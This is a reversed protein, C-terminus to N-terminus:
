VGAWGTKGVRRALEILAWRFLEGPSGTTGVAGAEHALQRRRALEKSDVVGHYFIVRPPRELELDRMGKLLLLGAPEGDDGGGDSDGGGDDSPRSWDSIVLDFSQQDDKLEQLGEESTRATQVGVQWSLFTSREVVNNGPIDDVWLILTRAVLPALVEIADRIAAKDEPSPPPLGQNKYAQTTQQEVFQLDVGFASVKQLGLQRVFQALRGRVLWL